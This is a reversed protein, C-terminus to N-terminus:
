NPLPFLLVRSNAQDVIVALNLFQDIAVGMQPSGPIGYSRRTKFPSSLTDVISITKSVSNLTLIGGTQPNIALSTPNIGVHVTTAGGTDPNFSSIVNGGSSVAYFLAPSPPLSLSPSPDFVVGTPTLTVTGVAATTSKAPTAAGIDVSDLVGRPFSSSNLALATVVALGRNNTGRDPDIAIAIPSTDVAITSATLTTPATTGSPPFLLGLNIESVTNSSTNAVLAAGTGENVAVGIPGSGTVVDPVKLQGALLDVISASGGGNNAVVALGFRPWIAVGQPGSGVSITSTSGFPNKITAFNPNDAFGTLHGTNDFTPLQPAIDVVSISNCGNNTIVALPHYSQLQLQDAIAVSSPKPTACVSAMDVSAVVIFDSANSQVGGSVVDLAYRHPFKLFSAPITVDIERDSVVSPSPLATGDLRVATGGNNFGSGFIKVGSLDASSTVTGQPFSAGIIGGLTNPDSPAASPVLVETVQVPKLAVPTNGTGLDVLQITGSGSQVVLAQNTGPDVAVGGFLPLATTTTSCAAPTTGQFCITATGAGPLTIQSASVTNQNCVPTTNNCVLASRQLTVPNSVSVQNQGSNYSVLSNSFPQFAVATTGLLEPAGSCTTTSVTCNARFTISSTNQDLWNLLNIQPGNQGTANADAAAVLGTIPNVAVGQTTQSIGAVTINAASYYATSFTNPDCNPTGSPCQTIGTATDNVTSNLAYTFSTSNIVSQVTFAGNFDTQNTGGKPVNLILVTGPNGPNLGHASQTTVTVLGSTLSVNTIVSSSSAKTVDVGSAIGLGGPTVVALHTHPMMAIQPAQGTNLTVQAFVCPTQSVTQAPSSLCKTGDNNNLDLLFGVKATTPNAPSSFAVLAHNTDSDVGVSYPLPVPTQEPPVFGALSIPASPIFPANTAGPIPFVTVSQDTFSVVAVTHLTQNVSLGTPVHVTCSAVPCALPTLSLTSGTAPATADTRGIKFFEVRDAGTVAVVAIGLQYDIDIASANTLPAGNFGTSISSANNVYPPIASYDPFIALNTISPNNFQATSTANAVVFPYLGPKSSAALATPFALRLQRATSAAGPTTDKLVTQGLFTAVTPAGDPGFYGGNVLMLLENQQANQVLSDPVSAVSTARVPVVSFRFPGSGNTVTQAPDAVSVTFTDASALDAELLRLRIGTSAPSTVTTTPIPFLVKLQNSAFNYIKSGGGDATVTVTSASTVNPADLYIDYFVANQPAITPSIGNFTIAAGAVITITGIAFRTNDANSTVVITLTATTPVATPASYLGNSDVSGCGPSCTPLQPYNVTIGGSSNTTPTGQTVLWTVGKTQIDNTLTASFQFQSQGTATSTPVTATTPTLTVSIGSDLFLTSTGTKKTDAASTATIIIKLLCNQQSGTCNTGPLKTSDPVSQPATYVVTANASNAPINGTADVCPNQKSDTGKGTSDVSTTVYNCTWTVNTNTTGSVISTLTLTQTVIVSFTSPSVSVTVVNSSKSGGGCGTLTAACVVVAGLLTKFKGFKMSVAEGVVACLAIARRATLTRGLSANPKALFIPCL